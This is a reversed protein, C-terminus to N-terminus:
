LGPSVLLLDKIGRLGEAVEGLQNGCLHFVVFLGMLNQAFECRDNIPQLDFLLCTM